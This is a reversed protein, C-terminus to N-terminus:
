DTEGDAEEATPGVIVVVRKQPEVHRDFAQRIEAATVAEVRETYDDFYDLPLDLFALAGIQEVIKGNSNLRMPFGGVINAQSDALEEDSPGEDIFRSLEEDMLSLATEVQDNRTQIGMVLRGGARLPMLYSYTSYALGRKERLESMLRSAFGSGGLMHNGVYLPLYDEHKRPIGDLAVLVTSQESPFNIRLTESEELPPVEPLPPAPEGTPLGDTLTDALRRAQEAEMDGVIVVTANAAVYRQQHFDRVDDPAISEVSERTGDTPHAYPHDGFAAKRLADSAVAQPSQQRSQIGRLQRERERQIDDDKFAPKAIVEAMLEVAPWLWDEETLSRLRVASSELNASASFEAGVRAFGDAIAKADRETTGEELLSATLSATGGKGAPDRASGADFIVRADVMPLSDTPYFLVEAGNDTQWTEVPLVPEARATASILLAGLALIAPWFRSRADTSM